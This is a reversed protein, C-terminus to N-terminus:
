VADRKFASEANRIRMKQCIYPAVDAIKHKALAPTVDLMFLIQTNFPASLGSRDRRPDNPNFFSGATDSFFEELNGVRGQSHPTGGLNGVSPYGKESHKVVMGGWFIPVGGIDEKNIPVQETRTVGVYDRWAIPIEGYRSLGAKQKVTGVGQIRSGQKNYMEIDVGLMDLATDGAKIELNPMLERLKLTAFAEGFGGRLYSELLKTPTWNTTIDESLTITNAWKDFFDGSAAMKEMGAKVEKAPRDTLSTAIFKVVDSGTYVVQLSKKSITQLFSATPVLAESSLMRSQLLKGLEGDYIGRSGEGLLMKSVEPDSVTRLLKINDDGAFRLKDAVSREKKSGEALVDAAAGLAQAHLQFTSRDKQGVQLESTADSM